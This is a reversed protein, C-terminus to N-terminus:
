HRSRKPPPAVTAEAEVAPEPAAEAEAVVAPPAEPEVVAVIRDGCNPDLKNDRHLRNCAHESVTLAALTPVVPERGGEPELTIDPHYGKGRVVAESFLTDASDINGDHHYTVGKNFVAIPHGSYTNYDADFSARAATWNGAAVQQIGAYGIADGSM